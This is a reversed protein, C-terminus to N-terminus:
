AKPRSPGSSFATGTPAPRIWSWLPVHAEVLRRESARYGLGELTKVVPASSRAAVGPRSRVIQGSVSVDLMPIQNAFRNRADTFRALAEAATAESVDVARYVLNGFISLGALGAVLLVLAARSAKM